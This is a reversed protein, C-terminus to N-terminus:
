ETKVKKYIISVASEPIHLDKQVDALKEIPIILSKLVPQREIEEKLLKPIGNNYVTGTSVINKISPGIYIVPGKQITERKVATKAQTKVTKEENM